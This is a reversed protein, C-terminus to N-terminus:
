QDNFFFITFTAVETITRTLIDRNLAFTAKFTSLDNLQPAVAQVEQWQIRSSALVISVFLMLYQSFAQSIEAESDWGWQIILLYDLTVNVANGVISLM